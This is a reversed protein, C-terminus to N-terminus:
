STVQEAGSLTTDPQGAGVATFLMTYVNSGSRSMRPGARHVDVIGIVVVAFMVILTWRLGRSVLQTGRVAHRVNHWVRRLNARRARIISRLRHRRSRSM